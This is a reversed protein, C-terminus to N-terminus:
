KKEEDKLYEDLKQNVFSLSDRIETKAKKTFEGSTVQDKVDKVANAVDENMKKMQGSNHAKEISDTILKGLEKLKDGIEKMDPADNVPPTTTKKETM